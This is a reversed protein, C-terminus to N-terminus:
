APSNESPAYLGLDLSIHIKHKEVQAMTIPNTSLKGYQM